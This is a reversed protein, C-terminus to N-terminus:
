EIRAAAEQRNERWGRTRGGVCRGLLNSLRAVTQGLASREVGTAFGMKHAPFVLDEAALNGAAGPAFPCGGLGGVSADLTRVGASIAAAANALGLAQTDPLHVALRSMGVRRGLSEPLRGVGLPHIHGIWDAVVLEDPRAGWIRDALALM